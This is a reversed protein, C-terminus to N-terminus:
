NTTASAKIQCTLMGIATEPNKAFWGVLKRIKGPIKNVIIRAREARRLNKHAGRRVSYRNEDQCCAHFYSDDHLFLFALLWCIM